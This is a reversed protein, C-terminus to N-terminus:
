VVTNANSSSCSGEFLSQFYDVTPGTGPAVHLALTIPAASNAQRAIDILRQVDARSTGAFGHGFAAGVTYLEIRDVLPGITRMAVPGGLAASIPPPVSVPPGVAPLDVDYFEGAFRCAGHLLDRVVCVAERLRRVRVGPDPFALGAGTLETVAWGAGIGLEFRGSSLL